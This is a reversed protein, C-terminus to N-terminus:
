CPVRTRGNLHGWGCLDRTRGAPDRLTAQDGTNNWVHNGSNWYLDTSTDTGRGTHLTIKGKVPVVVAGFTYVRGQAEGVSWGKLHVPTKGTNILSIWEADLSAPSRDDKGPSDYQSDHFRLPPEAAPAAPVALLAACLFFKM